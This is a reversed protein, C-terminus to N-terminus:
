RGREKEKEGWSGQTDEERRQQGGLDRENPRKFEGSKEDEDVSRRELM